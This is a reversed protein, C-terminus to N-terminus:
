ENISRFCNGEFKISDQKASAGHTWAKGDAKRVITTQFNEDSSDSIFIVLYKKTDKVLVAEANPVSVTGAESDFIMKTDFPVLRGTEPDKWELTCNLEIPEAFAAGVVSLLIFVSTLVKM